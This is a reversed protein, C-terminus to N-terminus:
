ITNKTSNEIYAYQSINKNYIYNYIFTKVYHNSNM